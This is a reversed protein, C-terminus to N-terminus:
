DCANAIKSFEGAAPTFRCEARPKRLSTLLSRDQKPVDFSQPPNVGCPHVPQDCVGFGLCTGMYRGGPCEWKLFISCTSSCTTVGPDPNKFHTYAWVAVGYAFLILAIGFGVVGSGTNSKQVNDPEPERPIEDDGM